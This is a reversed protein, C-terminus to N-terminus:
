CCQYLIEIAAAASQLRCDLKCVLVQEAAPQHLPLQSSAAPCLQAQRVRLVFRHVVKWIREYLLQSSYWIRTAHMSKTSLTSLPESRISIIAEMCRSCVVLPGCRKKM